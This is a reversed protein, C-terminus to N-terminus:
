YLGSINGNDDLQIKEAAPREPLGPMSVIDGLHAIIYGAGAAIELRRVTCVFNRPRGIKKPDDSLSLPTKAMCIPLNSFGLKKILGMSKNAEQEFEVSDGGYVKTVIKEIKADISEDFSYIPSSKFGRESSEIM